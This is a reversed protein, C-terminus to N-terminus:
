KREGTVIHKACGNYCLRVALFLGVKRGFERVYSLRFRIRLFNLFRLFGYSKVSFDPHFTNTFEKHVLITKRKIMILGRLTARLEGLAEAEAIEFRHCIRKNM